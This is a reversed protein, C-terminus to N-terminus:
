FGHLFRARDPMYIADGQTKSKQRDTKGVNPRLRRFARESPRDEYNKRRLSRDHLRRELNELKEQYFKKREMSLPDNQEFEHGWLNRKGDKSDGLTRKRGDESNRYYKRNMDNHISEKGMSEKDHYKEFERRTRLEDSNPRPKHNEYKVVDYRNRSSPVDPYKQSGVVDYKGGLRDMGDDLKRSTLAALRENYKNEIDAFLKHDTDTLMDNDYFSKIDDSHRDEKQNLHTKDGKEEFKNDLYEYDRARNVMKPLGQKHYNSRNEESLHELEHRIRHEDDTIHNSEQKIFTKSEGFDTEYLDSLMALSKMKNKPLSKPNPLPSYSNAPKHVVTDYIKRIKADFIEKDNGDLEIHKVERELTDLLTMLKNDSEEYNVDFHKTNHEISVNNKHRFQDFSIVKEEVNNLITETNEEIKLTTGSTVKNLNEQHKNTVVENRRFKNNRQKIYDNVVRQINKFDKRPKVDSKIPEYSGFNKGGKPLKFQAARNFISSKKVGYGAPQRPSNRRQGPESRSYPYARRPVSSKRSVPNPSNYGPHNTQPVVLATNIPYTRSLSHPIAPYPQRVNSKTMSRPQFERDRAAEDFFENVEDAAQSLVTNSRNNLRDAIYSSLPERIDEARDLLKEPPADEVTFIPLLVLTPECNNEPNPCSEPEAQIGADFAVRNQPQSTVENCLCDSDEQSGEPCGCTSSGRSPLVSYAMEGAKPRSSFNCVVQISNYNMSRKSHYFAFESYGSMGCGMHTASGHVIELYLRFGTNQTWSKLTQTVSFALKSDDLGPPPNTTMRTVPNWDPYSFRVLGAIQGPDPFKKSARCLDRKLVCQNALVQAFTALENDWKLRFIGYGRPLRTGNYGTERGNAIKSRIANTIELLQNALAPTITVNQPNSCRPGMERNPDYYMCMVHSGEPCYEMQPCYDSLYIGKQSYSDMVFSCRSVQFIVFLPVFKLFMRTNQLM